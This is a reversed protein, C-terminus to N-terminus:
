SEAIAESRALSCGSTEEFSVVVVVIVAVVMTVIMGM